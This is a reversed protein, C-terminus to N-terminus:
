KQMRVKIIEIDSRMAQIADSDKRNDTSIRNLLGMIAERSDELRTLRNEHDFVKSERSVELAQVRARFKLYDNVGVSWAAVVMALLFAMTYRHAAWSWRSLLVGGRHDNHHPTIDDIGNSLDKM